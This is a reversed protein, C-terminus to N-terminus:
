GRWRRAELTRVTLFLFFATWSLFFVVEASDFVGRQFSVRFHSMVDMRELAGVVLAQSRELGGTWSSLLGTVQSMVLTALFPLVLWWLNAMFALFAAVLPTNTLTSSFLSISVFLASCLVAGLYSGLVPGWDPQVGLAAIAVAYLLVSGFLVSMFATAALFKGSIVAADSVPATLLFELTGTRAEEAVMRMALLPPLFVLLAWFPWAGGLALNLMDSVDGNSEGLYAVFFIGNVFLAVVLLIWALPSYFLGVLERRCVILAGRV